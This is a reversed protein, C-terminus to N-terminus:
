RLEAGCSRCREPTLRGGEMGFAAHCAPCKGFAGLVVATLFSEVLVAGTWVRAARPVRPLFFSAAELALGFWVIALSGKVVARWVKLKRREPETLERV